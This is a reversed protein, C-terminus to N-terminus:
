SILANYANASLSLLDGTKRGPIKRSLAKRKTNRRFHATNQSFSIGCGSAFTEEPGYPRFVVTSKPGQRAIAALNKRFMASVTMGPLVKRM